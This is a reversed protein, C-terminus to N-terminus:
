DHKTVIAWIVVAVVGVAVASGAVWPAPDDNWSTRAWAGLRGLQRPVNFANEIGDLTERLETRTSSVKAAIEKTTMGDFSM